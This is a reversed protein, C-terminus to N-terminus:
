QFTAHLDILSKCHLRREILPRASALEVAAIIVNKHKGLFTKGESIVM